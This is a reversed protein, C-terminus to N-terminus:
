EESDEKLGHSAFEGIVPGDTREEARVETSVTEADDIGAPDSVAAERAPADAPTGLNGPTQGPAGPLASGAPVTYGGPMAYAPVQKPERQRFCVNEYVVRTGCIWDHFARKQSDVITMLYGLYLISSLFRGASERFLVDVFRLPTGDANEVRLRMLKKGLTSGTFYTLLAFYVVGLIWCLVDLASYRFLFDHSTIGGGTVLAGILAPIRIFLLVVALLLRDVLFAAARPGFGARTVEINDQM